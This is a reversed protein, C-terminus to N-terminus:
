AKPIKFTLHKNGIFSVIVYIGCAIIQSVPNSLGSKHLAVLACLQVIYGAAFVMLFPGLQRTAAEKDAGRFTVKRHMVFAIALGLAYGAINALVYNVHMLESLGLIVALAAVTNISGVLCYIVFQRLKEFPTM